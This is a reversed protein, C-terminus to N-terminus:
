LSLYGFILPRKAAEVQIEKLRQDLGTIDPEYRLTFPTGKFQFSYLAKTTASISYDPTSPDDLQGPSMRERSM